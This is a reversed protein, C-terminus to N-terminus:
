TDAAQVTRLKSHWFSLIVLVVEYTGRLQCVAFLVLYKCLGHYLMYAPQM